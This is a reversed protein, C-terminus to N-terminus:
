CNPMCLLGCFHPSRKEEFAPKSFVSLLLVNTRCIPRGKTSTYRLVPITGQKATRCFLKEQQRSRRPITYDGRHYLHRYAKCFVFLELFDVSQSFLDVVEVHVSLGLHELRAEGFFQALKDVRGKPVRAPPDDDALVAARQAAVGDEVMDCPRFVGEHELPIIEVDVFEADIRGMAPLPDGRRHDGEDAIPGCHFAEVPDLQVHPFEVFARQGEVLRDAEGGVAAIHFHFEPKPKRNRNKGIKKM